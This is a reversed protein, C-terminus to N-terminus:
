EIEKLRFDNLYLLLLGVVGSVIYSTSENGPFLYIDMLGWIGRWFLIILFGVVISYWNPHNSKLWQFRTKNFM